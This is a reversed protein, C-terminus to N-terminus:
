GLCASVEATLRAIEDHLRVIEGERESFRRQLTEHQAKLDQLLNETQIVHNEKRARFARQSARNQARRREQPLLAIKDAM